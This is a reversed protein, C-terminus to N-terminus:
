REVAHGRASATTAVAVFVPLASLPGPHAHLVYGAGCLAAVVAVTRPAVRHFALVASSLVVLAQDVATTDRGFAATTVALAGVVVALAVDALGKRTTFHGSM